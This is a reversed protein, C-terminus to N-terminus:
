APCRSVASRDEILACTDSLAIAPDQTNWLRLRSSWVDRPELCPYSGPKAAIM